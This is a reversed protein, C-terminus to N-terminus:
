ATFIPPPRNGVYKELDALTADKSRMSELEDLLQQKTQEAYTIGLVHSKRNVLRIIDRPLKSKM